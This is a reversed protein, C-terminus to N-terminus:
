TPYNSKVTKEISEHADRWAVFGGKLSYGEVGRRSFFVAFRKSEDGTPCVFLVRSNQSIPLGSECIEDLKDVPFNMSNPIHGARYAIAGRLDVILSHTASRENLLWRQAEDIGVIQADACEDDSLQLPSPKRIELGFLEPRQKQLFTLYKEIRDCIIIVANRKEGILGDLEGLYRLAAVYSAGSSPGALVGLRRALIVVGDIASNGDVEVIESYASKQFLGVEYMEDVNRIGPILHGKRAVVGVVTLDPNASRLCEAVGRSSGATGLGTILYDVRAGDLDALIEPGTGGLHAEANKPNTYQSPHFYKEPNSAMLREIQALPNDPDNPDPCSSVGATEFVNAGLFRLLLKPEIIRIRNTIVSLPVGYATCMAALAIATNGSSSEIVTQGSQAVETLHDAMMAAATRDKLSGGLPNYLELKAFLNFNKLGHVQPDIQLLPTNGILEIPSKVLM